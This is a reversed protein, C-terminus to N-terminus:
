KLAQQFDNQSKQSNGLAQNVLGRILWLSKSYKKPCEQILTNLKSYATKYDKIQLYCLLINFHAEYVNLSCLGVDSLDTQSSSHSVNDGENSEDKQDQKVKLSEEFDTIAKQFEGTYFHM